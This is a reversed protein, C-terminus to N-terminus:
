SISFADTSYKNPVLFQMHSSVGLRIGKEDSSIERFRVGAYLTRSRQCIAEKNM